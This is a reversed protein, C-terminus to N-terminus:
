SHKLNDRQQTYFQDVYAHINRSIAFCSFLIFDYFRRHILHFVHVKNWNLISPYFSWLYYNSHNIYISYKGINFRQLVYITKQYFFFFFLFYLVKIYFAPIFLWKDVWGWWVNKLVVRWRKNTKIKKKKKFNHGFEFPSRKNKLLVVLLVILKQILKHKQVTKLPLFFCFLM